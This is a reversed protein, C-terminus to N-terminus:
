CDAGYHSNFTHVQVWEADAPLAITWTLSGAPPASGYNTGFSISGGGALRVNVEYIDPAEDFEVVIVQPGVSFIGNDGATGGCTEWEPEPEPEWPEEGSAASRPATVALLVIPAAWAATKLVGNM